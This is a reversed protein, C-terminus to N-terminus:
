GTTAVARSRRRAAMRVPADAAGYGDYGGLRQVAVLFVRDGLVRTVLQLWRRSSPSRTTAWRV